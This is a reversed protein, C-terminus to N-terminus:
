IETEWVSADILPITGEGDNLITIDAEFYLITTM